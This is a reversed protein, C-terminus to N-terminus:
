STGEGKLMAIDQLKIWTVCYTVSNRRTGTTEASSTITIHDM